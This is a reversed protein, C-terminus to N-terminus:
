PVLATEISFQLSLVIDEWKEKEKLEKLFKYLTGQVRGRRGEGLVLGKQVWRGKHTKM